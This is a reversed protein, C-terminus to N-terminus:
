DTRVDKERKGVGRHVRVCRNAHTAVAPASTGRRASQTRRCPRSSRRPYANLSTKKPVMPLDIRPKEWLCFHVKARSIAPRIEAGAYEAVHEQSECLFIHFIANESEVGQQESMQCEEKEKEKRETEARQECVCVTLFM